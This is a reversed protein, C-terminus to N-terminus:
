VTRYVAQRIATLCEQALALATVDVGDVPPWAPSGEGSPSLRMGVLAVELRTQDLDGTLEAADIMGDVLSVTLRARRGDAQASTECVWVGDRIKVQRVPPTPRMIARLWADSPFLRDLEALKAHEAPTLEGPQLEADLARAFESILLDHVEDRSAEHGLEARLHTIYRPMQRRLQARFAASPARVVDAMLEHPFDFLLSGCIVAAEGISGAGTGGIKCNAVLIDNLGGLRAPVGLRQYAALPARLFYRYAEDPRRPARQRHFVCHYFLQQRDLYVTGGGVERRLVPLQHARCYDLDVDQELDQHYGICVYPERPTMLIISDPGNADLCHAVAHYITQSHLYSVEGLDLLRVAHDRM